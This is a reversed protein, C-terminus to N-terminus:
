PVTKFRETVAIQAQKDPILLWNSIYNTFTCQLKLLDVGLYVILYKYNM